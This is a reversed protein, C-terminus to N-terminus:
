EQWSKWLRMAEERVQGSWGPLDPNVGDERWRRKVESLAKEFGTKKPKAQVHAKPKRSVPTTPRPQPTSAWDAARKSKKEQRKKEEAEWAKLREHEGPHVLEGNAPSILVKDLPTQIMHEFQYVPGECHILGRLTKLSEAQIDLYHLTSGGYHPKDYKSRYMFDRETTTLRVADTLDGPTKLNQALFVWHVWVRKDRRLELLPERNRMGRVMIWYGLRKGHETETYADFPRPMSLDSPMEEIQANAYKTKLWCYFLMRADLLEKPENGLPCDAITKHSFHWRLIEGAKVTVEGSCVPCVFAGSRARNRLADIRSRDRGYDLVIDEETTKDSARFM